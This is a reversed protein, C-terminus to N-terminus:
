IVWEIADTIVSEYEELPEQKEGVIILNGDGFPIIKGKYRPDNVNFKKSVPSSKVIIVSVSGQTGKLVIHAGRGSPPINCDNAFKIHMSKIAEGDRLAGGADAIVNRIQELDIDEVDMNYRSEERVVHQLVSDHFQLDAASLEDSRLAVTLTVAVALVLSAALAFYRRLSTGQRSAPAAPTPKHHHLMAVEAAPASSQALLRAALGAPVPVSRLAAAVEGDRAALAQLWQTREASAACAALFDPDQDHPNALARERFELDDM